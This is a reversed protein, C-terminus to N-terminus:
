TLAKFRSLSLAEFFASSQLHRPRRLRLDTEGIPLQQLLAHYQLWLQLADGIKQVVVFLHDLGYPTIQFSTQLIGRGTAVSQCRLLHQIYGSGSNERHRSEIQQLAGKFFDAELVKEALLRKLDRIERQLRSERSKELVEDQGEDACESKKDWRYLTQRAVGLETALHAINECYKFREVAM